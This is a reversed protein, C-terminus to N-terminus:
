GICNDLYIAMLDEQLIDPPLMQMHKKFPGEEQLDPRRKLLLRRFRFRSDPCIVIVKDSYM